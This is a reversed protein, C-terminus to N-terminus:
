SVRPGTDVLLTPDQKEHHLLRKFRLLLPLAPMPKKVLQNNPLQTALCLRRNISCYCKLSDPPEPGISATLPLGWLKVRKLKRAPGGLSTKKAPRPVAVSEVVAERIIKLGARQEAVGGIGVGNREYLNRAM